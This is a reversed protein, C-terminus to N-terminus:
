ATKDIVTGVGASKASQISAGPAVTAGQDDKDGDHDPRGPVEHAEATKAAIAVNPMASVSSISM